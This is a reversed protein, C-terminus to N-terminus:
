DRKSSEKTPMNKKGQTKTIVVEDDYVKSNEKVINKLNLAIDM